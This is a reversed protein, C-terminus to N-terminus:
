LSDSVVLIHPVNKNRTEQNGLSGLVVTWVKSAQLEGLRICVYRVIFFDTDSSLEFIEPIIVAQFNMSWPERVINRFQLANGM